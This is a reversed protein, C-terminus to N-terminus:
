EELKFADGVDYKTLEARKEIEETNMAMVLERAEDLSNAELYVTGTRDVYVGYKM